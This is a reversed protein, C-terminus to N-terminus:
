ISSERVAKTFRRTHCAVIEGKTDGQKGLTVGLNFQAQEYVEPYDERAINRYAAIAEKTNGQEGLMAGIILQAATHLKPSDERRIKRLIEIAKDLEEQKCLEIAKWLLEKAEEETM